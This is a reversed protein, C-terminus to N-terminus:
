LQGIGLTVVAVLFLGLGAVFLVAGIGIRRAMQAAGKEAWQTAPYITRMTRLQLAWPESRLLREDVLYNRIEEPDLAVYRRPRYVLLVLWLIAVGLLLAAGFYSAAFLPEGVCGLGADFADNALGGLIALVIGSFGALQGAKENLSRVRDLESQLLGSATDYAWAVTQKNIQAYDLPM